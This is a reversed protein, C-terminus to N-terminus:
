HSSHPLENKPFPLIELIYSIVYCFVIVDYQLSPRPRLNKNLQIANGDARVYWLSSPIIEQFAFFHHFCAAELVVSRGTINIRASQDWLMYGCSCPVQTMCAHAIWTLLPVRPTWCSCPLKSTTERPGCLDCPCIWPYRGTARPIKM